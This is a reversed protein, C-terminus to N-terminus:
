RTGNLSRFSPISRHDSYLQGDRRRTPSLMTSRDAVETKQDYAKGLHYVIAWLDHPDRCRHTYPWANIRTLESSKGAPVLSYSTPLVAFAHIIM